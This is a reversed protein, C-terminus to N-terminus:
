AYRMRRMPAGTLLVEAAAGANEWAVSGGAETSTPPSLPEETMIYEKSPNAREHEYAGHGGVIEVVGTQRVGAVRGAQLL